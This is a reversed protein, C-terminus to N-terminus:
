ENRREKEKMRDTLRDIDIQRDIQKWQKRKKRPQKRYKAVNGTRGSHFVFM